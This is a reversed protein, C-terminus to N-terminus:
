TSTPHRRGRRDLHPQQPRELDDAVTGRKREAPRLLLRQQCPQEHVRPMDDRGVNQDVVQPARIRRGPSVVGNLDEDRPQPLCEPRLHEDRSGRAVHGGDLRRHEVGAPEAAERTRCRVRREFRSEGLRLQVLRERQPPPRRERVEPVLPPRSLVGVPEFLLSERRELIARMHPQREALVGGENGLQLLEHALVRQALPETPLQHHGQVARAALGFRELCVDRCAFGEDLLKSDVRAGLELREM